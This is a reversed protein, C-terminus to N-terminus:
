AVQNLLGRSTNRDTNTAAATQASAAASQAQGQSSRAAAKAQEQAIEAEVTQIEMELLQLRQEKTKADDSKNLGETKLEQQLDQLRKELQALNSTGTNGSGVYSSTSISSISMAM